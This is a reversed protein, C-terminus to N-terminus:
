SAAPVIGDPVEVTITQAGRNRRHARGLRERGADVGATRGVPRVGPDGAIGPSSVNGWVARVSRNHGSEQDGPAIAPDGREM